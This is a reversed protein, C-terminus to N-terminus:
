QLAQLFRGVRPRYKKERDLSFLVQSAKGLFEEREVFGYMRSDRSFDRNDGLMFYKGEPVVFPPINGLIEPAGPTLMIRHPSTKLFEDYFLVYPRRNEPVETILDNSLAAYTTPRGNLFLVDDQMFVRDGPLGIVRKVMKNSNEPSRFVAIDGRQPDSRWRKLSTLPLRLDYASRDILIVDGVAITPAMSGSPVWNWDVISSRLCLVTVGFVIIAIQWPRAKEGFLTRSRPSRNM